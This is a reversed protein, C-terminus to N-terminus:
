CCFIVGPMSCDILLVAMLADRIEVTISNMLRAHAQALRIL